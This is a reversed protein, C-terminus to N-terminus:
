ELGIVAELDGFEGGVGHNLGARETGHLKHRFRLSGGQAGGKMELKESGRRSLRPSLSGRHHGRGGRRSGDRGSGARNGLAQRDRVVGNM